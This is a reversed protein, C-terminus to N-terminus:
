GRQVREEEESIFEFVAVLVGEEGEFRQRAASSDERLLGCAPASTLSSRSSICVM